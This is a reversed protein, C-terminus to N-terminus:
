NKSQIFTFESLELAANSANGKAYSIQYESKGKPVSLQIMKAENGQFRSEYVNKADSVIKVTGEAEARVFFILSTKSNSPNQLVMKGQPLRIVKLQDKSIIARLERP